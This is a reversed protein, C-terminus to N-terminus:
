SRLRARFKEGVSQIVQQTAKEVEEETLTRDPSLFELSFACSKKGREVQDGAYVDFLRIRKLLDGGSSRIGELLEAVTVSEDVVFALDRLVPPYKPLSRFTPKEQYNETLPKVLLEVVYVEQDVGFSMSTDPKLKGLFGAYSGNFEIDVSFETLTNTTSYYIFRFKDLSIKSLLRETSGKLDFFDTRRDTGDWGPANSLGTQVMLIREEEVYADFYPGKEYVSGMRFVNGIEFLKLDEAGHNINYRIVDLAGPILSTRLAAMDESIPNLIEVAPSGGLTATSNRQLSNTVIELYGEGVLFDRISDTYDARMPRSPLKLVTEMKTEIKDYGHIRAVEESLDIERELDPRFTPISFLLKRGSKTKRSAKLEIELSTLIRIIEKEPLDTGLVGNVKEKRLPVVHPPIRKPYADIAGKLIEGGCVEQILQAARDVAYRTANPDAGREFRQSADTSLGLYKSTRRISRPDFYASELLINVTTESIETNAGGMVGAIAVPQRSDCIMLTDSRLNRRKGDLTTFSDGGKARQVIITRGDLEDYDFAHLPHGLEMLVYNTVDVVNNVPRLGVSKLADQMWKPSDGIKVGYIVRATYRPCEDVDKIQVSAHDDARERSETFRVLPRKLKTGLLVAVERAVGLHSMCDPRNPTLGIEMVTQVPGLYEALPTGAIAQQDLVLIGEADDGLGLEYESCIMGNSEVGRIKVRALSFPKGELDHQNRPIVAGVLAVPVRQGAAVNPAGCVIELTQKGADVACVTLKDANPHRKVDVVQGVVFGDYKTLPKEVSEVELGAMTLRRALDEVPIKISVYKKLWDLSIRM